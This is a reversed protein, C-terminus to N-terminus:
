KNEGDKQNIVIKVGLLEALQFLNRPDLGTHAKVKELHYEVTNRHMFLQRSARSAVMGNQAFAVLVDMDLQTIM